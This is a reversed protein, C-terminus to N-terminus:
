PAADLRAKLARLKRSLEYLETEREDWDQQSAAQTMDARAQAYLQQTEDFERQTAERSFM